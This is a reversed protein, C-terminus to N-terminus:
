CEERKEEPTDAIYGLVGGFIGGILAGGPGGIIVGIIGGGTLGTLTRPAKKRAAEIIYGESKEIDRMEDRMKEIEM